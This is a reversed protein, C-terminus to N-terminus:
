MVEYIVFRCADKADMRKQMASLKGGHKWLEAFSSLFLWSSWREEQEGGSSSWASPGRSHPPYHHPLTNGPRRRQQLGVPSHESWSGGHTEGRFDAEPKMSVCRNRQSSGCIVASKILSWSSPNYCAAHIGEWVGALGELLGRLARLQVVLIAVNKFSHSLFFWM